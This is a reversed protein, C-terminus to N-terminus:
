GSGVVSSGPVLGGVLSYVHLSGHGWSCIYCLIAKNPMLPLPSGQDQPPEIGLHLSISPQHPPFVKMSAPLPLNPLPTQPPFFLFPSLIHLTFLYFFLAMIEIINLFLFHLNDLPFCESLIAKVWGLGCPINVEHLRKWFLTRLPPVLSLVWPASPTQLGM